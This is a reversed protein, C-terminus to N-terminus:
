STHKAKTNSHVVVGVGPLGGMIAQTNSVAPTTTTPLTQLPSGIDLMM